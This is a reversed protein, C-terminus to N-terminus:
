LQPRPQRSKTLYLEGWTRRRGANPAREALDAAQRQHQEQDLRDRVIGAAEAALQDPDSQRVLGGLARLADLLRSIVHEARLRM